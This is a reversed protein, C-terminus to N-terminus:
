NRNGTILDRVQVLASSVALVIGLSLLIGTPSMLNDMSYGRGAECGAMFGLWRGGSDLCKDQAVFAVFYILGVSCLLLSIVLSYLWKKM